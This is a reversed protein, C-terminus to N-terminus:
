PLSTQTLWVRKGHSSQSVEVIPIPANHRGSNPKLRGSADRVELSQDSEFRAVLQLVEEGKTMENLRVTPVTVAKTGHM